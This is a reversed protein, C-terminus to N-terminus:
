TNTKRNRDAARHKQHTMGSCLGTCTLIYGREDTGKMDSEQEDKSDCSIRKHSM